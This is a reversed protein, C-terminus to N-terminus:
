ETVSGEEETTDEQDYDPNLKDGDAQKTFHDAFGALRLLAVRYLIDDLLVTEQQM